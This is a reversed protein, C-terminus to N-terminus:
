KEVQTFETNKALQGAKIKCVAAHPIGDLSYTVKAMLQKGNQKSTVQWDKPTKNNIQYVQEILYRCYDALQKDTKVAQNDPNEAASLSHTFMLCFTATLALKMRM